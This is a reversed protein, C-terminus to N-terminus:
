KGFDLDFADKLKNEVLKLSIRDRRSIGLKAACHNINDICKCYTGYAPNEKTTEIGNGNPMTVILGTADIYSELQQM